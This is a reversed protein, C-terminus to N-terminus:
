NGTVLTDPTTLTDPGTATDASSAAGGMGMGRGMGGRMGGMEGDRHMGGGMGGEGQMGSGMGGEGQMGGGMGGQASDALSWVYAAADILRDETVVQAPMLGFRQIAREPLLSREESPSQVYTVIHQTFAARDAVADRVHRAVHSLPPALNPPPQIAHCESCVEQYVAEGRAIQEATPPANPDGGVQGGGCAAAAVLVLLAPLRVNGARGGDAPATCM